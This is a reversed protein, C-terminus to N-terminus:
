YHLTGSRLCGATHAVHNRSITSFVSRLFIAPKPLFFHGRTRIAVIYTHICSGQFIRSSIRNHTLVFYLNTSYRVRLLPFGLFSISGLPQIYLDSTMLLCELHPSM